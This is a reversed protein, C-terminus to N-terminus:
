KETNPAIIHSKLPSEELLWRINQEAADLITKRERVSRDALQEAVQYCPNHVGAVNAAEWIFEYMPHWYASRAMSGGRPFGYKWGWEGEAAEIAYSLTHGEDSHKRVLELFELLQELNNM